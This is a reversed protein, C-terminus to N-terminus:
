KKSLRRQPTTSGELGPISRRDDLLAQYAVRVKYASIIKGATNNIEVAEKAEMEGGRLKRFVDMLGDTVEEIDTM